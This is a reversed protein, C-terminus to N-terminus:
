QPEFLGRARAIGAAGILPGTAGLGAPRIKAGKTYTMGLNEELAEQAPGFFDDGYGLAVSGAILVLDLDLLTVAQAVSAGVLRGVEQRFGTDAEEAPRGTKALIAIGSVEAELCGRVGCVCRRGGPVAVIHGIHGANGSRGDLIHGDVVIGGGIGSSVVMAMFNNVGRAAGCWGEGLALAKTDIDIAVDIGLDDRLRQRLAFAQWTPINIPSVREGNREMPGACGVGCWSATAGSSALVDRVMSLLGAYLVEAGQGHITPTQAHDLLTGSEDVIGAAMKTAGIDIALGAM